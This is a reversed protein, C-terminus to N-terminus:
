RSLSGVVADRSFSSPWWPHSVWVGVFHQPPEQHGTAPADMAEPTSQDMPHDAVQGPQLMQPTTSTRAVPQSTAQVVVPQQAPSVLLHAPRTALHAFGVGLPAITRPAAMEQEKPQLQVTSVLNTALEVLVDVRLSEERALVPSPIRSAPSALPQMAVRVGALSGPTVPIHMKKKQTPESDGADALKLLEQFHQKADHKCRVVPNFKHTHRVFEFLNRRASIFKRIGGHVQKFYQPLLFNQSARVLRTGLQGLCMQGGNRNLTDIILGTVDIARLELTAHCSDLPPHRLRGRGRGCESCFSSWDNRKYTSVRLSM